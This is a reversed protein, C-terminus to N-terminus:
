SWSCLASSCIIVSSRNRENTASLTRSSTRHTQRARNAQPKSRWNELNHLKKVIIQLLLIYANPKEPGSRNRRGNQQTSLLLAADYLYLAVPINTTTQMQLTNQTPSPSAHNKACSFSTNQLFSFLLSAQSKSIVPTSTDVPTLRLLHTRLPSQLHVASKDHEDVMETATKGEWRKGKMWVLDVDFLHVRVTAIDEESTM